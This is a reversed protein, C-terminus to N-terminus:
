RDGEWLVNSSILVHRISGDKCRLRAEYSHIEERAALRRLIEEIVPPDVHFEAIPHGIYEERRYGLLELEARNAWLITGDPGVWHMGDVANEFFDRLEEVGPDSVPSPSSSQGYMTM